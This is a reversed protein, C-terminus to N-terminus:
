RALNRKQEALPGLYSLGYEKPDVYATKYFDRVDIKEQALEALFHEAPQISYHFGRDTSLHSDEAWRFRNRWFSITRLVLSRGDVPMQRFSARFEPKYGHFYEEANSFYLIHMPIQMRRAAAAIGAVTVKGNLDGRLARIRGALALQKLYAYQEPDNLWFKLPKKRSLQDLLGFTKLLYPSAKRYSKRIFDLEGDAKFEENLIAEVQSASKKSDWMARHEEPSSLRKLFAIHIKNAAVVVRTFDM